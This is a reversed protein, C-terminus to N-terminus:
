LYIDTEGPNWQNVKFHRVAKIGRLHEHVSSQVRGTGLGHVVKVHYLESLVVADLWSDLRRIAEDVTCGHLDLTSPPKPQNRLLVKQETLRPKPAQPTSPALEEASCTLKMSGLAVRYRGGGLVESIVGDRKLSIVTVTDGEIFSNEGM